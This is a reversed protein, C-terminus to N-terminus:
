EDHWHSDLVFERAVQVFPKGMADQLALEEITVAGGSYKFGTM